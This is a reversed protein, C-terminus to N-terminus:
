VVYTSFGISNSYQRLGSESLLSWRFSDNEHFLLLVLDPNGLKTYDVFV